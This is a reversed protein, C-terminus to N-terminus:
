KEIVEKLLLKKTFTGRKAAKEARVNELQELTYGHAIACARLVELLDALEEISHDARYEHLEEELKADLAVIYDADSMVEAICVKGNDAIIEPICDRILKHYKM